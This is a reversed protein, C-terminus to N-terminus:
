VGLETFKFNFPVEKGHKQHKYGGGLEQLRRRLIFSWRGGWEQAKLCPLFGEAALV